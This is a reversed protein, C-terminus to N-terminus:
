MVIALLGVAMIGVFSLIFYIFNLLVFKFITKARGQQYFKRMAKYLYFLFVFIAINIFIDTKLFRDLLVGILILIFFMTQTNFVFILHETYNNKNRIYLLSIFLTFFPLMFFLAISLKSIINSVYANANDGGNFVQKFNQFKKYFFINKTNKTYGLSDLGKTPETTNSNYFAIYKKLWLSSTKINQSPKNEILKIEYNNEKLEKVAEKLYVKKFKKYNFIKEKKFLSDKVMVTYLQKINKTLLKNVKKNKASKSILSDNIVKLFDKQTIFLKVEKVIKEKSNNKESELSNWGLMFDTGIGNKKFDKKVDKIISDKKQQDTIYNVKDLSRYNDISMFISTVLFFIISVHLYLQFPNVYKMREGTVYEMPVKGPKLLLPKLTNLTRTDFAFFGGLLEIIYQKISLPKNDNVQGCNSCFNDRNSIPQKCNLCAIGKHNKTFRTNSKM